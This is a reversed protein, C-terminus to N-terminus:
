APDVVVVTAHRGVAEFEADSYPAILVLVWGDPDRVVMEITGWYYKKIASKSTVGKELIPLLSSVQIMASVKPSRIQDTFVAADAVAIHGDAIELKAGGPFEYTVGRYKEPATATGSPVSDLFDTDGYAFVPVLELVDEYFARSSSISAVKLHVGLGTVITQNM